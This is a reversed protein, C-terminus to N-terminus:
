WDDWSALESDLGPGQWLLHTEDAPARTPIASAGAPPTRRGCRGLAPAPRVITSLDLLYSLARTGPSLLEIKLLLLSGTGTSVRSCSTSTTSVRSIVAASAADGKSM